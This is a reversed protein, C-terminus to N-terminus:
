TNSRKELYSVLDNQLKTVSELDNQSIVFVRKKTFDIDNILADVISQKTLDKKTFIIWEEKDTLIKDYKSLENRITYYANKPDEHELSVLHLIMKTRAIHRLFTHGLGKGEAAGEILGPIDALTYGYLVGLHPELTTFQYSGITSSANTLINLLTSKGANPQGVLGVDVVLSLEIHFESVEGKKGETSQMPTRNTSSKFYKNGLGGPGGKLIKEIQDEEFLEFTRGSQLDTIISGIPVDIYLDEGNKGHQSNGRGEEGDEAKFEKSGTYQALRNLDRVARLFVSGGNGGNGGAPGGNPKFKERNWRVVGDGGNGAAAKIKLEDVFM